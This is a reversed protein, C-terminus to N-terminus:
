SYIDPYHSYRGSGSGGMLAVLRGPQITANIDTLIMKSKSGGGSGTTGPTYQRETGPPTTTSSFSRSPKNESHITSSNTSSSTDGLVTDVHAKATQVYLYVNSISITVNSRCYETDSSLLADSASSSSHQQEVAGGQECDKTSEANGMDGTHEVSDGESSSCDSGVIGSVPFRIYYLNIYAISYYCVALVVLGIWPTTYDHVGIDQTELIYNGDYQTCDAPNSSACGPIVRDSYENSMLIRYSYSCFSLYRVWKVYVPIDHYNVLYGATLSIFTFNTNALLSALTFDRSISVCMWVMGNVIITLIINVAIFMLTYQVGHRLNCGYYIPIAYFLPQLLIIPMSSLIYATLYASTHYMNDQIERDFVKLETCFREVLIITTIYYEMSIVIYLLGNRNEIDSISNSLQWFIGMVILGLVVAQLLSGLTNSYDRYNNKFFRNTLLKVQLCWTSRYELAYDSTSFTSHNREHHYKPSPQQESRSTAYSLCMHMQNEHFVNILHEIRQISEQYIISTSYNISSIDVFYDAPNSNVPCTYGLNQFYQVMASITGCYIANGGKSLLLVHDFMHFIDTRPQHISAIITTHHKSRTLRHLAEIVTIATFSDLGSTPEDACLVIYVYLLYLLLLLYITYHLITIIFLISYLLLLITGKPDSIIQTAISVRRREGGSLGRNGGTLLVNSNNDGIINDAVERLGLEQIVDEVLCSYMTDTSSRLPNETKFRSSLPIPTKPDVKMRAAFLLTERVTLNPMLFDQQTVYGVTCKKLSGFRVEGGVSLQGSSYRGAIVNLLTTKGSGSGGLIAFLTGGEVVTNIPHLITKNKEPDTKNTIAISFDQIIVDVSDPHSQFTSNVYAPGDTSNM